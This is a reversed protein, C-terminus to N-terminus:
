NHIENHHVVSNQQLDAIYQRTVGALGQAMESDPPPNINTNNTHYKKDRGSVDEIDEGNSNARTSDDPDDRTGHEDELLPRQYKDQIDLGRPNRRALCHVANIVDQLLPLPTFSKQNLIIGTALNMFFYGGQANSTPSLAISGTAHAQMNKDHDNHVQAYEEFQLHCHNNYDVTLGTIIQLPILNGGM